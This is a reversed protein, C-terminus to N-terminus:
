AVQPFPNVITLQGAVELGDQMDETYLVSCGSALACAIVLSDWFSLSYQERLESARLLVERRLHIIEYKTYFAQILAYLQAEPLQAKKLLNVCTENIIQTSIVVTHHQVIETARSHKQANAGEILAYLWINTDVFCREPSHNAPM